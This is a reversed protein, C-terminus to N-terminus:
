TQWSYQLSLLGLRLERVVTHSFVSCPKLHHL